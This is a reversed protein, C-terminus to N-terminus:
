GHSEDERPYLDPLLDKFRRLARVYRKM